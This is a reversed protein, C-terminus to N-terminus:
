TEQQTKKMKRKKRNKWLRVILFTLGGLVVLYPSSAIIWVLLDVFGKGLGKLSGAFGDRIREWVTPDKVPTYERVEDVELHITAFDIQNDYLRLQSTVSELEYRVDTLRSEIELLDSMTEAQAMLELLRAEETQLAKMRSETSVYRLTVDELNKDQSVVNAIGALQDTFQDVRDAPIRITMSASRYRRSTGSGNYVHQDEVYGDLGAIQRDLAETVADLDETEASIRVTVIWKRSEPLTQATDQAGALSNGSGLDYAGMEMPAEQPMAMQETSGSKAGCGTLLSCLLILVLGISLTKRKKMDNGGKKTDMSIPEVRCLGGAPPQPLKQGFPFGKFHANAADARGAYLTKDLFLTLTLIDPNEGGHLLSKTFLACFIQQM